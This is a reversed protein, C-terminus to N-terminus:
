LHSNLLSLTRKSDNRALAAANAHCDVRRLSKFVRFHLRVAPLFPNGCWHACQNAIVFHTRQQM